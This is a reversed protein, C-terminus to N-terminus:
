GDTECVFPSSHRVNRVCLTLCTALVLDTQEAQSTGIGLFGMAKRNSKVTRVRMKQAQAPSAKAYQHCVHAAGLSLMAHRFATQAHTTPDVTINRLAMDMFPNQNSSQSQTTLATITTSTKSRVHQFIMKSDASPFIHEIPDNITSPITISIPFPYPNYPPFTPLTNSTNRWQHPQNSPTNLVVSTEPIPVLPDFSPTSTSAPIPQPYTGNQLGDMPTWGVGINGTAAPTGYYPEIAAGNGNGNGNGTVPLLDGLNVDWPISLDTNTFDYLSTLAATSQDAWTSTSGNQTNAAQSGSGAPDYPTTQPLTNPSTQRSPKASSTNPPWVCQIDTSPRHLKTLSASLELELCRECTPHTQIDAM